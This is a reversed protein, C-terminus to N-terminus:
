RRTLTPRTQLGGAVCERNRSDIEIEAGGGRACDCVEDCAALDEAGVVDGVAAEEAGEGLHEDGAGAVLGGDAGRDFERCTIAGGGGVGEGGGEALGGGAVEQLDIGSV